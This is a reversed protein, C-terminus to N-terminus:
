HAKREPRGASTPADRRVALRAGEPRRLLELTAPADWGPIFEALAVSRSTLLLPDVGLLSQSGASVGLLAGAPSLLIYNTETRLERLAGIFGESDDIPADKFSSLVPLLAGAKTVVLSVRTYDVVGM